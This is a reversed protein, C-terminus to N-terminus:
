PEDEEHVLGDDEVCKYSEEEVNEESMYTSKAIKHGRAYTRESPRVASSRGMEIVSMYKYTTTSDIQFSFIEYQGLRFYSYASLIDDLVVDGQLKYRDLDEPEWNDIKELLARRCISLENQLDIKKAIRFHNWMAGCEAQGIEIETLQKLDRRSMTGSLLKDTFDDWEDFIEVRGDPTHLRGSYHYSAARMSQFSDCLQEFSM